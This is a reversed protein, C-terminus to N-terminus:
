KTYTANFIFESGSNPIPIKGQLTCCAKYLLSSKRQYLEPIFLLWMSNLYKDNTILSTSCCIYTTHYKKGYCATQGLIGNDVRDVIGKCVCEQM